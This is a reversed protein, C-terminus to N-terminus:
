RGEESSNGDGEGGDGKGGEVNMEIELIEDCIDGKEGESSPEKDVVATADPSDEGMSAAIAEKLMREEARSKADKSKSTKPESKKSSSKKAAPQLYRFLVM